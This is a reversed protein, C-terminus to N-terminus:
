HGIYTYCYAHVNGWFMCKNLYIKEKARGVPSTFLGIVVSCYALHVILGNVNILRKKKHTHMKNM